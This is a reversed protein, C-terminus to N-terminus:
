RGELKTPRKSVSMLMLAVASAAAVFAATWRVASVAFAADLRWGHVTPETTALPMVDPFYWNCFLALAVALIASGVFILTLRRKM